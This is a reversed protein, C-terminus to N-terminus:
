RRMLISSTVFFVMLMIGAWWGAGLVVAAGVVVAALAGSRSLSQRKWAVVGVVVALAAAIATRTVPDNM